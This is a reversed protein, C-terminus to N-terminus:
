IIERIWSLWSRRQLEISPIHLEVRCGKGPQSTLSSSGRMEHMRQNINDLGNRDLRITSTDFGRGNDQVVVTLGNVQRRIVFFLETAQSHKAVNNLVEKIAFLLNRRYPLDFPVNSLGLEVELLCQIPSNKFFAQAYSCVFTAFEQLTDRRPNIAWLVEDTARVLARANSSIRAIQAHVDSNTPLANLAVEGQLALQTARSGLDDHIDRAIRTRERRLLQKEKQHLLLQFVLTLGFLGLSVCVLLLLVVFWGSKWFPVNIPQLPPLPAPIFPTLSLTPLDYAELPITALSLLFLAVVVAFRSIQNMNNQKTVFHCFPLVM